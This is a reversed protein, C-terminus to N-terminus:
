KKTEKPKSVKILKRRTEIEKLILKLYNEALQENATKEVPASARSVTIFLKRMRIDEQCLLNSIRAM